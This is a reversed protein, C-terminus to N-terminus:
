ELCCKMSLNALRGKFKLVPFNFGKDKETKNQQPKKLQNPHLLVLKNLINQLRWYLYHKM